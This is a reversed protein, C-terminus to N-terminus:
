KRVSVTAVWSQSFGGNTRQVYSTFITIIRYEIRPNNNAQRGIRRDTRTQETYLITTEKYMSM